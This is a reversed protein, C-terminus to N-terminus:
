PMRRRDLLTRVKSPLKREQAREAEVRFVRPNSVESAAWYRMADIAHNYKDEPTDLLSGTGRDRRWCYSQLERILNHSTAPVRIHWRTLVGIGDLISGAGKACPIVNYGALCLDRISGPQASDAYIRARRDVGKESMVGELSDANPDSASRTILLGTKYVIERAWLQDNHIACEIVTSPDISFGFDMGYGHRICAGRVPWEDPEAVSWNELVLGERRGRRGKGYVDWKFRDATGRLRNAPTPEFGEIEERQADTLFPNDAYISHVYLVDDRQGNLLQQFVWHETLSPNFDVIRQRTTRMSLQQWADLSVEMAENVFLRTQQLGQLRQPDDTGGFTIRGGGSFEYSAEQKNVVVHGWYDYKSIVEHLTEMCTRKATVLHERVVTCVEDSGPQMCLAVLYELASFTKGSRSSGELVVIPLQDGEHNDLLAALNPNIRDSATM